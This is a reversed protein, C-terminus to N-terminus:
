ASSSSRDPTSALERNDALREALQAADVGLDGARNALQRTDDTEPCV